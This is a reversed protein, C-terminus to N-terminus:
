FKKNLLTVTNLDYLVNKYSMKTKPGFATELEGMEHGSQRIGVTTRLSLSFFAFWFDAVNTRVSHLIESQNKDNSDNSDYKNKKFNTIPRSQIRWGSTLERQSHYVRRNRFFLFPNKSFTARKWDRSSKELGRFIRVFRTYRRRWSLGAPRPPRAAGARPPVRAEEKCFFFFYYILNLVRTRYLKASKSFHEWRRSLVESLPTSISMSRQEYQPSGYM